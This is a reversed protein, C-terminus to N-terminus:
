VVLTRINEFKEYEKNVAIEELIDVLKHVDQYSVYLAAPALRIVNPERYDPIVHHSKLAQCIRYAEDHELAVHGGRKEDQRPNGVEYGYRALREDILYMLYATIKLSKERIRDLGADNFIKMVGEIGAMSLMPPTGTLWGDVDHAQQHQHNLQFLTDKVNGHWGALGPRRGFHRRNIYLGAVTGPGASLHKYNCWVAFDAGAKKLDHPVAGISHCLDWGIIIGKQRAAASIKEMDLLQASRYLVTPFLAVAVDDTMAAILADEDITRGDTSSVVKVAEKPSYGHLQVQSDVAHRDTPFNLDDVLIKYREPTPQYFTALCQHINITTSNTITVEDPDAGVLKSILGGLFSPYLFYKGNEIAWMNIGHTKWVELMNIVAAEADKSCLGLSNGDMYIEGENIYFRRRFDKLPDAEDLQRAQEIGLTFNYIM